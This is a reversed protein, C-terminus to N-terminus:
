QDDGDTGGHGRKGHHGGRGGRRDNAAEDLKKQQEPTLMPRIQSMANDMVAKAKQMAEQRIIELQPTAQDIIPQVRTKQEATLDLRETTKELMNHRPGGRGGRRDPGDGQPDNALASGGLALASLTTLTILKLKM